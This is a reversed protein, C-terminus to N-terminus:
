GEFNVDWISFTEIIEKDPIEHLNMLDHLKKIYYPVEWLAPTELWPENNWKDGSGMSYMSTGSVYGRDMLEKYERSIAHFTMRQDDSLKKLREDTMSHYSVTDSESRNLVILRIICLQRWSLFDMTELYSFATHEDIDANSSFRINVYFKTIYESKKGQTDTIIQRVMDEVFKVNNDNEFYWDARLTEGCQRKKDNYEQGLSFSNFVREIVHDPQNLVVHRFIRLLATKAVSKGLIGGTKLIPELIDINQSIEIENM